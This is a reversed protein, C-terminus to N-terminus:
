HLTVGVTNSPGSANNPTLGVALGVAVGVAVAGGITTWLWWRRYLPQRPARAVVAQPSTAVVGAAAPAAAAPTAVPAATPPPAKAQSQQSMARQLQQIHAEVEARNPADPVKRLYSRYSRLASELEGALRYAQGINFLLAPDPKAKYAEEYEAAAERFKSLDYLATGKQFHERALSVNDARANGAAVGLCAVLVLTRM